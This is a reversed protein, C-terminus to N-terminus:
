AGLLVFLAAVVWFVVMVVSFVARVQEAIICQADMVHVQHSGFLTYDFTTTPCTSTHAPLRWSALEAFTGNFFANQFESAQPVTPDVPDTGKETMDRHLTDLRTNISSAATSAEGTRAYDTPFVISGTNTGTGTGTGTGADIAPVVAPTNIATPASITGPVTQATVNTVVGNAGVTITKAAVNGSEQTYVNVKAGGDATPTVHVYVPKGDADQGYVGVGGGSNNAYAPMGDADTMTYEQGNRRFDALFDKSAAKPDTLACGSDSNESPSYGPACHGQGQYFPYIRGGQSIDGSPSKVFTNCRASYPDAPDPIWCSYATPVQPTAEAQMTALPPFSLYRGNSAAADLTPYLKDGSALWGSYNVDDVTGEAPATGSYPADAPVGTPAPMYSSPDATTLPIRIPTPNTGDSLETPTLGLAFITGGILASGISTLSFAASGGGLSSASLGFAIPVLAFAQRAPFISAFFVFAAMALAHFRKKNM